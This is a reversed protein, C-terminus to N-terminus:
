LGLSSIYKRNLDACKKPSGMGPLVDQEVVIWGCYNSGKLIRVIEPFDVSGHGLKCFVGQKVSTFYDWQNSKSLAGIEPDFDKFHIHWIREIHKNLFSVPNGGGFALHGMDLCLGLLDPDTLQLLRETEQETEVYGACHHHFVTRLGFKDMVAKAIKNAGKAFIKWKDESLGNEPSIRGANKTREEVTGNEDALIIFSDDFGAAVLLGAVKLAKEIGKDHNIEDALYVPVFAGPIWFKKKFIVNRLEEPNTPLFGWDGLETGEYGTQEMENLVEQYSQTEEEFGFELAGWSCPANAVKIKEM